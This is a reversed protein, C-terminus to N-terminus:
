GRDAPPRAVVVPHALDSNDIVVSARRQPDCEDLYLRQGEVYRNRAADFSPGDRDLCRAVSVDFGVRLFVSHHWYGRLRARHLFVGDFVLVADPPAVREPVVVPRDTVHDFAATRHRGSGNRALPDLLVRCLLDYDFSDQYYGVPSHRGLRYRQARPRHFSDVGARIVPRGRRTLAAGLEDAFMTKGAGDVGDVGVLVTGKRPFTDMGAASEDLLAAGGVLVTGKRPLVDMGAASEDLM